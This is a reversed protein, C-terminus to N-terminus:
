PLSGDDALISFYWDLYADIQADLSFRRRAREAGTRGIKEALGRDALLLRVAEAMGNADGPRVLIGTAARGAPQSRHRDGWPGLSDVQEPIGGVNTAVVPTACAAAELISNGFTEARAAHLYVDAARYYDSVTGVDAEFPIFRLEACGIRRGRGEEGLALFLIPEERHSETAGLIELTRELMGFDKWPNSRIGNAAFLLVRANRDIGLTDRAQATPGPHFVALDVGNPIVRSEVIAPAVLSDEARRMLWSSPTALYVRSAAMIAAKRRRNYAAGARARGGGGAAPFLDPRACSGCDSRWRDCDVSHACGGGLLWADHLTLVVPLRRTLEPLLRLDFYEGHLNHCHLIDPPSPTIDLVRHSGPFEMDERGRRRGWERSPEALVRLVRAAQTAAPNRGELLEQRRRLLAQAWASRGELDNFRYVDPDDSAGRGVVLFSRHGRAKYGQFLSWAVNEAGGGREFTGVQTITLASESM